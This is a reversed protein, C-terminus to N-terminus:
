LPRTREPLRTWARGNVAGDADDDADADLSLSDSLLSESLTASFSSSTILDHTVSLAETAFFSSFILHPPQRLRTLTLPTLM